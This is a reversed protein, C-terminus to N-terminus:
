SILILDSRCNFCRLYLKAVVCKNSKVVFTLDLDSALSHSSFQREFELLRRKYFCAFQYSICTSM